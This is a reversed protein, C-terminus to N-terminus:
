PQTKCPANIRQISIDEMKYVLFPETFYYFNELLPLDTNFCENFVIRFINVSSINPPIASKDVGPLYYAAFPSFRENLCTKESSSFDVFVGPGRDAQLIIIPPTDSNALIDDVLQM